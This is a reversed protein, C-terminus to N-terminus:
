RKSCRSRTQREPARAHRHHAPQHAKMKAMSRMPRPTSGTSRRLQDLAAGAACHDVLGLQERVSHIKDLLWYLPKALITFWAM